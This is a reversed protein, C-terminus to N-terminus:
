EFVAVPHGVKCREDRKHKSKELNDKEFDPWQRLAEKKAREHCFISQQMVLPLTLHIINTRTEEEDGSAKKHTSDDVHYPHARCHDARKGDSSISQLVSSAVGKEDGVSVLFPLKRYIPPIMARRREFVAMVIMRFFARQSPPRPPRGPPRSHKNNQSFEDATNAKRDDIGSSAVELLLIEDDDNFASNEHISAKFARGLLTVGGIVIGGEKDVFKLASRM